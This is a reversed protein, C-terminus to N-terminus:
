KEVVEALEAKKEPSKRKRAFKVSVKGKILEVTVQDSEPVPNQLLLMSLPDEIENQILRRMPRAGMEPEYGNEVMYERAATKLSLKMGKESLRGNLEAIQMDLIASIQDKTLAGFVVVDDIRNLLEPRMFEKIAKMANSKIEDYPLLKEQVTSFGVRGESTIERAGANSTMIIITNRFNVTHGLSDTLEGEELIQLLLNFVDPHAKEIEDFLIVSYPHQRIKETLVGGNEYGVYGPPAGVLRSANYKEMYDSMDIRIMSDQSGFLFQALTKALQTKGVGTPGLFIFSGLPRRTSSIGARSRRVASSIIRIADDQGVVNKHLENEMSVLRASENEDIQEAPIGTMDAILTCIDKVSVHKKADEMGKKWHSSFEELKQKLVLVKDRVEAAREYNQNQVLLKKEEALKEIDKEIEILEAPRESEQIKKRAGAEDLVDIAKDPFFRETLYRRSFKVIAPIVDDDYVVNHFEEYKKKIGELISVTAEDSPEEISVTQFRRILAADKEMHKRFEKITTAGIIQIEGRSLAPKLINSADLNGEPSGAGIITHIEDIFLLVDKREKLENLIRKMREEFEGRYKTGAILSTLDLALLRKKLLNYPVNGQIIRQALGEVVASKGVGPDGIFLPNNKTRRSLIQVARQIEVNRSIVPDLGNKGALETLDTSYEDILSKKKSQDPNRHQGPHNAFFDTKGDTGSQQLVANDRESDMSSPVITRAEACTNRLTEFPIGAKEFYRYSISGQERIASILIHETGIYDDRLSRSEMEASEFLTHLRRSPPLDSLDSAVPNKVSISQELALQYTLVNIRLLRLIEYGVGGASKLLALLVHEPLLQSSGSKRGEEQALTVILHKARPSFSKM